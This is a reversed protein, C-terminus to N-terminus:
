LLTVTQRFRMYKKILVVCESMKIHGLLKRRNNIDQQEKAILYTKYDAIQM